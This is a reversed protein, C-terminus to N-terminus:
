FFELDDDDSEIESDTFMAEIELCNNAFSADFYHIDKATSNIFISKIWEEIDQVTGLLVTVFLKKKAEDGDLSVDLERLFNTFAQFSRVAVPFTALVDAIDTFMQFIEIINNINNSKDNIDSEEFDYIAVTLRDIESMFNEVKDVVSDDLSEIFTIADIKDEKSFRIDDKLSALIKIEKKPAEGNKVREIDEVYSRMTEELERNQQALEDTLAEIQKYYHDLLQFDTIERCVNFLVKIVEKNRIPKIIFHNVRINILDVLSMFENNASVVVIPQEDHIDHIHKCMQTGTM